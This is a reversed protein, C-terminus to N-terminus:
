RTLDRARDTLAKPWLVEDARVLGLGHPNPDHVCRGERCIVIHEHGQTSVGTMFYLGRPQFTTPRNLLEIGYPEFFKKMRREPDHLEIFDPVAEIPLELLSATAAQMCNGHTGGFRTQFVRKM